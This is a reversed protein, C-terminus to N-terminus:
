SWPLRQKTKRHNHHQDSTHPIPLPSAGGWIIMIFKKTEVWCGM